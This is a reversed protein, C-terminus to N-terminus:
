LVNEKLSALETETANNFCAAMARAKEMDITLSPCFCWQGQRDQYCGLREIQERRRAKYAWENACEACCFLMESDIDASAETQWARGGNCPANGCSRNLSAPSM